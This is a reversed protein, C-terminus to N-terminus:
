ISASSINALAPRRSTKLTIERQNLRPKETAKQSNSSIAAAHQEDAPKATAPFHNKVLFDLFVRLKPSIFRSSPWTAQFAETQAISDELVRVLTGDSLQRRVAFDPVCAIGVGLEALLVLPELASVITTIPLVLDGATPPEEKFPWREIKGTTPVRRHLCSHMKLDRIVTPVGARLFYSPSGVIALRYTGLRRTMLRSDAVTGAYIAVDFGGDIVDVHHDSFELELDIEPFTRMFKSIAPVMLAGILPLSVRLKGKPLGKTQAFEEEINKIESFIRQCSHLFRHGEQTLTISRTSRHFLRVGHRVELRTIAKAVASSSLSLQRGAATFSRTEATRVFANLASFSDM